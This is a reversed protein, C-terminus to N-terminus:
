VSYITPLTLHTYSVPAYGESIGQPSAIKQFLWTHVWCFGRASVFAVRAHEATSLEYQWNAFFDFIAKSQAACVPCTRTMRFPQHDTQEQEGQIAKVALELPKRAVAADPEERSAVPPLTHESLIAARLADLDERLKQIEPSKNDQSRPDSIVSRDFGSLLQLARDLISILFVKSKELALFSALTAEFDAMGSERIKEDNNMLKAELAQRASLPHVHIGSAGVIGAVGDCIYELVRDHENSGLLDVKNAVIFLKRGYQRIDMLFNQEAESLPADVSTVFIVADVEPLFAYTTATNERSASGIGPTDIFYLGRRLFAVPLEVRAELIGKENGPNGDETVFAALESVDIEQSFAWGKRTLVVREQPGYCLATIASTLPLMGTPLLDRGIVANMLTSKGRKFQGVVALNFRDEALKVLLAHYQESAIEAKMGEFYQKGGRLLDSIRQKLLIYQRLQNEQSIEPQM